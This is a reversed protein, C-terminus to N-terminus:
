DRPGNEKIEYQTRGRIIMVHRRAMVIVLMGYNEPFYLLIEYFFPVLLNRKLIQEYV